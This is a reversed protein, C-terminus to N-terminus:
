VFFGMPDCFSLISFIKMMGHSLWIRWLVLFFTRLHFFDFCQWVSSIRMLNTGCLVCLNPFNLSINYFSSSFYSGCLFVTKPFLILLLQYIFIKWFLIQSDIILLSSLVYVQSCIINLLLPHQIVNWLEQFMEGPSLFHLIYICLIM